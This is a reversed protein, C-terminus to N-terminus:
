IGSLPAVTQVAHMAPVNEVARPCVDDLVQVFQVAPFDDGAPELLQTSQAAPLNERTIPPECHVSQEAPVYEETVPAVNHLLQAAPFDDGGPEPVRALQQSQGAPLNDSAAPKSHVSQRAPLYEEPHPTENQLLQQAPVDDGGPENHYEFQTFQTAPLNEPAPPGQVSQMAPLNEAATAAEEDLVHVPQIAPVYEVTPLEAHELQIAPVYEVVAPATSQVSQMAPVYEVTPLEAHEFQIAPVYEVVTPAGCHVLQMAPLNETTAAAEEDAVQVLQTAPFYEVAPFETQILQTGPLNEAAPSRQTSQGAKEVEGSPLVTEVLQWHLAPYKPAFPCVHTAHEAM